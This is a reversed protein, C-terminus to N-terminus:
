KSFNRTWMMEKYRERYKKGAIVQYVGKVVKGIKKIREIVVEKWKEFTKTAQLGYSM